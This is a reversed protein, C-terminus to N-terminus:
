FSFWMKTDTQQNLRTLNLMNSCFRHSGLEAPLSLIRNNRLDLWQLRPLILFLPGSVSCIWNGELCLYQPTCSVNCFLWGLGIVTVAPVGRVTLLGRDLVHDPVQTLSSRRLSLMNQNQESPVKQQNQPEVVDERFVVLQLEEANLAMTWSVESNM